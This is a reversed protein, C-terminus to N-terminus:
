AGEEGSGALQALADQSRRFAVYTERLDNLAKSPMTKRPNGLCWLYTDVALVVENQDAVKRELGEVHALLRLITAPNAAAIYAADQQCLTMGHSWNAKPDCVAVLRTHSQKVEPFDRDKYWPGPTAARALRELEELDRTM